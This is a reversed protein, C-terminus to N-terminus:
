CTGWDGQNKVPPVYGYDRLDFSRPMERYADVRRSDRYISMDVDGLEVYRAADEAMSSLLEDNMSGEALAPLVAGMSMALAMALAAIRRPLHGDKTM